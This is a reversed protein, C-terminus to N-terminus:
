NSTTSEKGNQNLEVCVKGPTRTLPDHLHKRINFVEMVTQEYEDEIDLFYIPERGGVYLRNVSIYAHIHNLIDEDTMGFIYSRLEKTVKLRKDTLKLPDYRTPYLKDSTLRSLIGDSSNSVISNFYKSIGLRFFELNTGTFVIQKKKLMLRSRKNVPLTKVFLHFSKQVRDIEDKGRFEFYYNQM